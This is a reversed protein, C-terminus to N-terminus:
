ELPGRTPENLPAMRSTNLQMGQPCASGPHHLAHQTGDGLGGGACTHQVAESAEGQKLAATRSARMPGLSGDQGMSRTCQEDGRSHLRSHPVVRRFEISMGSFCHQQQQEDGGEGQLRSHPPALRTGSPAACGPCGTGPASGAAKNTRQGRSPSGCPAPKHAPSRSCPQAATGPRSQHM